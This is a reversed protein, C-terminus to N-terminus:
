EPRLTDIPPIYSYYFSAVCVIATLDINYTQQNQEVSKKYIM